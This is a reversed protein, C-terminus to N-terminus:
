QPITIEEPLVNESTEGNGIQGNDNAGWCWLKTKAEDFKCGHESQRMQTVSKDLYPAPQPTLWPASATGGFQGFNNAGWCVGKIVDEEVICTHRYGSWMTDITVAGVGVVKQPKGFESSTGIGLQGDTNAGWCWVIKNISERTCIHEHGPYVREMPGIGPVPTPKTVEPMAVPDQGCQGKDNKGWCRTELAGSAIEVIACTYETGGSLRRVEAGDSFVIKKPVPSDVKTGDGLQGHNNQGWCYVQVPPTDTATYACTHTSGITLSDIAPLPGVGKPTASAATSNIGLQGYDNRGWCSVAGAETLACIHDLGIAISTVGPLDVKVPNPSTTGPEVGPNAGWCWLSKDVKTICTSKRGTSILDFRATGTGAGAGAAGSSGCDDGVCDVKELGSLGSVSNCGLIAGIGVLGAWRPVM